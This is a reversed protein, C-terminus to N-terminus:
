ERRRLRFVDFLVRLVLVAAVVILTYGFIQYLSLTPTVPPGGGSVLLITAMVGAVGALFALVLQNVLERIMGRDRPDALMRVNVSLRGSELLSGLRDVRRPIRRLLPILTTLEDTATEKLSTPRLASKLRSQAYDRSATLVDFTPSLERLTGEIVAVARFASALEAPIALQHRALLAVLDTFMAVDVSAGAGLHFSMFVGLERRLEREDISEPLEVLNLLVDAVGRSDGRYFALLVESIQGRMESDLRGVSGFDIMALDAGPLLMVNGPHLDTHFVGDVMIQRLLSSFLRHAQAEREAPPIGSTAGGDSLTSGDILGMVLVRESSFETFCHPIRVREMPPHSAEITEMTEMNRAEIRYDLEERLASAFSRALARVGLSRGWETTTQLASAMRVAIDLDRDVKPVIGPRQVKVAVATGDHLRGRYVQGVSAAALPTEDFEAFVTSLPAGLEQELLPRVTAWPEPPVREQLNALEDLFERPLIDARTSLIQGLKVFAVGAEELASRLARAQRARAQAAELTAATSPRRTPLLGHRIAIRTIQSYRRGRDLRTRLAPIWKTPAPVTGTPLILEAIVLFALSVLLIIGLQIPILAFTSHSQGWVFQAEFAVEAALGVIGGIVIRLLGVRVGLWRRVFAALVTVFVATVLVGILLDLAVTGASM